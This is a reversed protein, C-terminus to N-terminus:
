WMPYINPDERKAKRIARFRAVRFALYRIADVIRAALARFPTTLRRLM